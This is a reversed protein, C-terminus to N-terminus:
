YFSYSSDRVSGDNDFQCSFELDSPQDQQWHILGKGTLTSGAHTVRSTDIEIKRVGHHERRVRGGLAEGCEDELYYKDVHKDYSFASESSTSTGGKKANAAIVAALAALGVGIAINKGTSSHHKDDRDYRNDRNGYPGDYSYSQVWGRKVTCNFPYRHGRARVKGYVRYRHHGISDAFVNRFDSVNYNNRISNKCEYIAKDEGSAIAVVSTFFSCSILAIILKKNM